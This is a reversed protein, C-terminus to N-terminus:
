RWRRWRSAVAGPWDRLWALSVVRGDDLYIAGWAYTDALMHEPDLPVTGNSDDLQVAPGRTEVPARKM